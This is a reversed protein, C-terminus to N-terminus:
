CFTRGAVQKSEQRTARWADLCKKPKQCLITLMKGEKTGQSNTAVDLIVIMM